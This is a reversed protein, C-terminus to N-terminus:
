YSVSRDTIYVGCDEIHLRLLSSGAAKLLFELGRELYCSRVSCYFFLTTIMWSYGNSGQCLFFSNFVFKVVRGSLM